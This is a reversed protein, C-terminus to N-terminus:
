SFMIQTTLFINNEFFHETSFRNENTWTKVQQPKKKNPKQKRRKKKSFVVKVVKHSSSFATFPVLKPKQM